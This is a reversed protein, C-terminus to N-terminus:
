RRDRRSRSNSTAWIRRRAPAPTLTPVLVSEGARPRVARGSLRYEICPVARGREALQGPPNHRQHWSCACRRLSALTAGAGSASRSDLAVRTGGRGPQRAIAPGTPRRDGGPGGAGALLAAPGPLSGTAPRGPNARATPPG